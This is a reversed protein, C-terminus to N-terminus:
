FINKLERTTTLKWVYVASREPETLTITLCPINPSRLRVSKEQVLTHFNLDRVAPANLVLYGANGDGGQIPHLDMVPVVGLMKGLPEITGVLVSSSIIHFLPPNKISVVFIWSPCILAIVLHATEVKLDYKQPELTCYNLLQATNALLTKETNQKYTVPM